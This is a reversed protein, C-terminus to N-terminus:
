KGVPLCWALLPAKLDTWFGSVLAVWVAAPQETCTQVPVAPRDLLFVSSWPLQPM